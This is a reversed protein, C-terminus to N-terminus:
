LLAPGDRLAPCIQPLACSFIADLPPLVYLFSLFLFSANHLFPQLMPSLPIRGPICLLVFFGFFPPPFFHPFFLPLTIPLPSRRHYLFSSSFDLICTPPATRSHTHRGLLSDHHFAPCVPFFADPYFPTAFSWPSAVTPFVPYSPNSCRTFRKLFVRFFFLDRSFLFSLSPCWPSWTPSFYPPLPLPSRGKTIV